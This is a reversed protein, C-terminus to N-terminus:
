EGKKYYAVRWDYPPPWPYGGLLAGNRYFCIPFSNQGRPFPEDLETILISGGSECPDMAASGGPCRRWGTGTRHRTFLPFDLVGYGFIYEGGCEIPVAEDPNKQPTMGLDRWLDRFWKPPRQTNTFLDLQIFQKFLVSNSVISAGMPVGWWDCSKVSGGGCPWCIDFHCNGWVRDRVEVHNYYMWVQVIDSLSAGTSLVTDYPDATFFIGFHFRYGGWVEVSDALWLCYDDVTAELARMHCDGLCTYSSGTEPRNEVVEEIIWGHWSGKYGSRICWNSTANSNSWDQSILPLTYRRTPM